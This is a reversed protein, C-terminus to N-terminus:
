KLGLSSNKKEKSRVGCSSGFIQAVDLLWWPTETLDCFMALLM